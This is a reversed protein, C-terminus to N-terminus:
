CALYALHPLFFTEGIIMAFVAFIVFDYFELAGGLSSLFITKWQKNAIQMYIETHQQILLQNLRQGNLVMKLNTAQINNLRPTQLPSQIM